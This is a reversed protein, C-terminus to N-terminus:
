CALRKHVLHTLHLADQTCRKEQTGTCQVWPYVSYYYRITTVQHVTYFIGPVCLTVYALLTHVRGVNRPCVVYKANNISLNQAYVVTGRM